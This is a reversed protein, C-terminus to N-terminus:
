ALAERAPVARADAELASRLTLAAYHLRSKATGVPIGAAAAAETVTLGLYYHLVVITRHDITLRGFVRAIEDRDAFGQVGDPGVPEIQLTTVHVAVRRRRRAEDTAAHVLLRRLWADFRDPERLTRMDRWCDVLAEQVADQASESDRLVLYAIRYLQDIRATMLVDFADRDGAKARLVLAVDTMNVLWPGDGDM